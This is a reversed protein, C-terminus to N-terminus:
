ASRSRRSPRPPRLWRATSTSRRRTRAVSVLGRLAVAASVRRARADRQLLGRLRQRRCRAGRRLRAGAAGLLVRTLLGTTRPVQVPVGAAAAQELGQALRETLRGLREYAGDDLRRLTALGAATALPNGSLTGAQYTEGVPALHELLERPGAVAALPLGGGLVKGLVTSTRRCGSREQAGGAAVRFGTIVEDLILVAGAARLTSRLLELFGPEAPGPGHQGPDAGRHDGGPRGRCSRGGRSLADADNWPVVVTDAAQAATVGPSAPIGQTALGSGSEALLGDVHGHYCGAFKIVKARGTAARALRVATM